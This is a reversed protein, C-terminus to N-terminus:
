LVLDSILIAPASTAVHLDAFGDGDVDGTLHAVGGVLQYRLEGARGSFASQGIFSFAENAATGAIADIASLDIWDEGSVFDALVDPRVKKGDGTAALVRSEGLAAFIFTDAGGLGHLIDFGGGGALRNGAANGVIADDGSGGVANEITAGHAISINRTLGGADSFGGAALDIRSASSYGSLDLTDTGGADWITFVPHPNLTLDFATRGATSNFGYVTDGTRTSMNAGYLHQLAMVDFLLPTSAMYLTSDITHDGGAESADWYSMASYQRTDQVFDAHDHYNYGPGNYSGLHSLGLTHLTEHLAVFRGWQGLAYGSKQALFWNNLVIESGFIQAPTGGDNYNRASGSFEQQVSVGFYTIRRNGSGPEQRNDAVEVFTLNAVDAIYMMADRVATRQAQTFPSFGPPQFQGYPPPQDPFSFAIPGNPIWAGLRIINALVQSDDWVPKLHSM